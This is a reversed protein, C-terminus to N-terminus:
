GCERGGSIGNEEVAADDGGVGLVIHDLGEGDAAALDGRQAAIGADAGHDAGFGPHDIQFAAGGRGAQDIGVGM